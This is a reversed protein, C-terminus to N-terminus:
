EKVCEEVIRGIVRDIHRADNLVNTSLDLSSERVLILVTLRRSQWWLQLQRDGHPLTLLQTVHDHVSCHGAAELVTSEAEFSLLQLNAM